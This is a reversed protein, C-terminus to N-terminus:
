SSESRTGRSRLRARELVVSRVSRHPLTDPDWTCVSSGSGLLRKLVSQWFLRDLALQLLKQKEPETAFGEGMMAEVEGLSAPNRVLDGIRDDPSLTSPPNQSLQLLAKYVHVAADHEEGSTDFFAGAFEHAAQSGQTFPEVAKSLWGALLEPLRMDTAPGGVNGPKLSPM